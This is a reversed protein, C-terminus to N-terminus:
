RACATRCGRACGPVAASEDETALLHVIEGLFFPNGNTERHLAEGLAEADGQVGALSVWRACHAPSLGGLLLRRTSPERALRSLTAFFPDERQVETDRYTAVVLIGSGALDAAVFELLKLSPRDAWHVDDLVVVLGAPAAVAALFRSALDFLRFRAGDSAWRESPTLGPSPERLVPFMRALDDSWAGAAAAATGEGVQDIWRRLATNWPWFAPASGDEWGRGVM